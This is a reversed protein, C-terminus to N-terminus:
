KFAAGIASYAVAISATGTVDQSGPGVGVKDWSEIDHGPTFQSNTFGADPTTVTAAMRAFGGVVFEGGQALTMAGVVLTSTASTQTIAVSTDLTTVGSYERIVLDHQRFADTSATLTITLAGTASATTYWASLATKSGLFTDQRLYGQIQTYTNGQTDTITHTDTNVAIPNTTEAFVVIINGSTVNSSFAVSLPLNGISDANSQVFAGSSSSGSTVNIRVQKCNVQYTTLDDPVFQVCLKQQYGLGLVTGSPPTYNFTGAVGTTANLQTGSLATGVTIDAPNSWTITPCTQGRPQFGWGGIPVTGGTQPDAYANDRAYTWADDTCNCAGLLALPSSSIVTNLMQILHEGAPVQSTPLKAMGPRSGGRGRQTEWEYFRVNQGSRTTLPRQHAYAQAYDVGYQPFEFNVYQEQDPM